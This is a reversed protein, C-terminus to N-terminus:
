RKFRPFLKLANERGIKECEAATFVGCEKLDSVDSVIGSYPFDTGFLIQSDPVVKRLASMSAPNATQATDYYHRQIEYLRSGADPPSALKKTLNAHGLIREILFPMTGGAHSFIFRIDPYRASTGSELLNVITRTTDTGYEITAANVHPVLNVCCNTSVPHTDVVAKRKNLEEFIPTFTSDGLWKDGYSTGLCVGDAKLTDFAYEIERLSGDIDYPLPLVAFLGFRGPYDSVIKAGAENLERALRGMIDNDKVPGGREELDVRHALYTAASTIAIAVGAQDMADVNRAPTWGKFVGPLLDKSALM